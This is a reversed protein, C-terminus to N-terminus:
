FSDPDQVEADPAQAPEHRRQRHERATDFRRMELVAPLRQVLRSGGLDPGRRFARRRRQEVLKWLRHLTDLRRHGRRSRAAFQVPQVTLGDIGVIADGISIQETGHGQGHVVGLEALTGVIRRDCGHQTEVVVRRIRVEGLDRGRELVDAPVVHHEFTLQKGHVEEPRTHLDVEVPQDLAVGDVDGRALEHARAAQGTQQTQRM